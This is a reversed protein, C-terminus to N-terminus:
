ILREQVPIHSKLWWVLHCNATIHLIQTFSKTTHQYTIICLPVPVAGGEFDKPKEGLLIMGGSSWIGEYVM